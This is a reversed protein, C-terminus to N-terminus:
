NPETYLEVKKSYKVISTNTLVQFLTKAKTSEIDFVSMGKDSVVTDLAKPWTPFNYIFVTDRGFPPTIDIESGSRAFVRSARGDEDSFTVGRETKTTPYLVAINGDSMLDFVLLHSREEPLFSFDLKNGPTLTTSANPVGRVLPFAILRNSARSLSASWKQTTEYAYIASLVDEIRVLSSAIVGGSLNEILKYKGSSPADLLISLGENQSLSKQLKVGSNQLFSIEAYPLGQHFVKLNSEKAFVPKQPQVNALGGRSGGLFAQNYIGTNEQLQPLTVPSHAYKRDSMFRNLSDYVESNTIIGDKNLDSALEGNLIRLLADTFAGHPKGDLTPFASLNKTGIDAAPQHHGSAAFSFVQNYPYSPVSGGVCDFGCGEYSSNDESIDLNVSRTQLARSAGVNRSANASFCSDNIYTVQYKVELKELRPKMDRNGVLASDIFRSICAQDSCNKEYSTDWPLFAGTSYPLPIALNRDAASTGHGSLYLLIHDGQKGKDYLRDLESLIQEKSAEENVLVTINQKAFGWNNELSDQLASVDFNPGELSSIDAAQYESVGVLLAHKAAGAYASILPLFCLILGVRFKM